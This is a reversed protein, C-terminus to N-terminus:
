LDDDTRIGQAGGYFRPNDVSDGEYHSARRSMTQIMETRAARVAERYQQTALKYRASDGENSLIQRAINLALVGETQRAFVPVVEYALGGSTPPFGITSAPVFSLVMGESSYVVREVVEQPESTTFVRLVYGAYANPRRDITGAVLESNNMTFTSTSEMDGGGEHPYLEGNPLYELRLTKGETWKPTLRLINGEVKYGPGSPSYFSGPFVEGRPLGSDADVEYLREVSGVNPPLFYEQTGAVVTVDHRVVPTSDGVLRLDTWIAPWAVCMMAILDNDDYKANHEPQDTAKRVMSIVRRLFGGARTITSSLAGGPTITGGGGGEGVAVAIAKLSHAVSSFGAGAMAVLKEQLAEMSDMDADFSTGIDSPTSNGKEMMAKMAGLVSNVGGGAWGGLRNKIVTLDTESETNLVLWDYIAGPLVTYEHWVPLFGDTDSFTIKFRGATNLQAATLKMTYFGVQKHTCENDGAVGMGSAIQTETAGVYYFVAVDNNFDVSSQPTVGDTEDVFPGIVITAATDERLFNM